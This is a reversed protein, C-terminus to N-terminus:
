FIINRVEERELIVNTHKKREATSYSEEHAADSHDFGWKSLPTPLDRGEKGEM